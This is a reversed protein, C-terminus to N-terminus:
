AQYAPMQCPNPQLRTARIERMIFKEVAMVGAIRAHPRLHPTIADM